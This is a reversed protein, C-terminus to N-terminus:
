AFDDVGSVSRLNDRQKLQHVAEYTAVAQRAYRQGASGM